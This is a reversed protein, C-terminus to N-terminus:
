LSYLYHESRLRLREQAIRFIKVLRIEKEELKNKPSTYHAVAREAISRKQKMLGQNLRNSIGAKRRAKALCILM